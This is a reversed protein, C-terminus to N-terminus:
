VQQSDLYLEGHFSVFCRVFKKLLFLDVQNNGVDDDLKSELLLLFSSYHVEAISCSFEMKYAHFCAGDDKDGWNGSLKRM